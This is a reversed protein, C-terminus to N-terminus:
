ENGLSSRRCEKAVGLWNDLVLDRIYFARRLCMGSVEDSFPISGDFHSSIRFVRHLRRPTRGVLASPIMVVVNKICDVCIRSIEVLGDRNVFLCVLDRVQTLERLMDPHQEVGQEWDGNLLSPERESVDLEVPKGDEVKVEHREIEDYQFFDVNESSEGM